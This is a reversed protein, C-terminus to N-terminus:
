YGGGWKYNLGVRVINDTLRSNFTATLAAPPVTVTQELKGLDIYLYEVKASWGGGFAGEIGGGATWGARVDNVSATAATGVGVTNVIYTDKTQGYAVGATGYLLLNPTALFGLRPRTTGFWQLKHDTTLTSPPLALLPITSGGKQGSAQIDTELGFVWTGFQYNYGTQVGGIVGDVDQSETVTANLGILSGTRDNKSQGWSYGVNAGWYMGTWTYVPAPAAPPAYAPRAYMDAAGASAAALVVFATTALFLKKM